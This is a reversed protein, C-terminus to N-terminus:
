CRGALGAEIGTALWARYVHRETVQPPLRGMRKTETVARSLLCAAAAVGDISARLRGVANTDGIDATPSEAQRRCILWSKV